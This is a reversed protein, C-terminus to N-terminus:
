GADFDLGVFPGDAKLWDSTIGDTWLECEIGRVQCEHSLQQSVLRIGLGTGSLNLGMHEMRDPSVSSSIRPCLVSIKEDVGKRDLTLKPAEVLNCM